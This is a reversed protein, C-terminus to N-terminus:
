DGLCVLAEPVEASADTRVRKGEGGGQVVGGAAHEHLCVWYTEGDHKECRIM